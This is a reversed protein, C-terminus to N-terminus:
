PAAISPKGEGKFAAFRGYAWAIGQRELQM